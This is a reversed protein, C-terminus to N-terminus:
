DNLYIYDYYYQDEGTKITVVLENSGNNSLAMYGEAQFMISQTQEQMRLRSKATFMLNM